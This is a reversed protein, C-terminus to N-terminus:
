SVMGIRILVALNTANLAPYIDLFLRDEDSIKSDFECEETVGSEGNQPCSPPRGATPTVENANRIYQQPAEWCLVRTLPAACRVRELVLNNVLKYIM